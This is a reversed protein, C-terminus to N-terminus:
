KVIVREHYNFAKQNARLEGVNLNQIITGKNNAGWANFPELDPEIYTLSTASFPIPDFELLFAIYDGSYGKVMFLRDSPIGHVGHLSYTKGSQDMLKTDKSFCFYETMWNQELMIALYSADKTLWLAMNYDGVPKVLQMNDYVAYTNLDNRDYNKEPTVIRPTSFKPITDYANSSNVDRTLRIEHYGSLHWNQVGYISILKTTDALRPFYIQYDICTGQKSRLGFHTGFVDPVTRRARYLVGTERDLIATEENAIWMQTIEDAPMKMYCHLVTNNGEETLIWGMPVRDPDKPANKMNPFVDEMNNIVPANDVWKFGKIWANNTPPWVIAEKKTKEDLETQSPCYGFFLPGIALVKTGNSQAMGVMSICSLLCIIIFRIHKM